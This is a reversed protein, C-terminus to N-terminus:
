GLPLWDRGCKATTKRAALLTQGCPYRTCVWRSSLAGSGAEGGRTTYRAAAATIGSNKSNARAVPWCPRLCRCFGSPLEDREDQAEPVGRAAGQEEAGVCVGGTTGGVM